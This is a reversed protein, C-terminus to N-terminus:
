FSTASEIHSSWTFQKKVIKKEQRQNWRSDNKINIKKEITIKMQDLYCGSEVVNLIQRHTQTM